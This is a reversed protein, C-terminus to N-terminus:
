PRTTFYECTKGRPKGLLEAAVAATNVKNAMAHGKTADAAPVHSKHQCIAALEAAIHVKNAM